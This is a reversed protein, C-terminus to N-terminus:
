RGFMTRAHKSWQSLTDSYFNQTYPTQAVPGVNYGANQLNSFARRQEEAIQPGIWKGTAFASAYPAVTRAVQGYLRLAGTRGLAGWFGERKALSAQKLVDLLQLGVTGPLSPLLRGVNTAVRIQTAQKPTISTPALRPVPPKVIKPGSGMGQDIM